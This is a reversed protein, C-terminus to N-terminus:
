KTKFGFDTIMKVLETTTKAACEECLQAKYRYWNGGLYWSQEYESPDDYCGDFYEESNCIHKNCKDCNIQHVKYKYERTKYNILEAM